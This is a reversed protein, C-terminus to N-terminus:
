DEALGLEEVLLRIDTDSDAEPALPIGTVQTCDGERVTRETEGGFLGVLKAAGTGDNIRVDDGSSQIKGAISAREREDTSGTATANVAEALAAIEDEGPGCDGDGLLGSCGSVSASAGAAGVLKLTQRRKM